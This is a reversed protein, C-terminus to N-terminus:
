NKSKCFIVDPEYQKYVILFSTYRYNRQIRAISRMKKEKMPIVNEDCHLAPTIRSIEGIPPLHKPVHHLYVEM